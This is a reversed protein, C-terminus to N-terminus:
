YMPLLKNQDNRQKFLNIFHINELTLEKPYKKLIKELFINEKVNLTERIYSYMEKQIQNIENQLDLNEFHFGLNKKSYNLRKEKIKDEYKKEIAKSNKFYWDILEDDLKEFIAQAFEM